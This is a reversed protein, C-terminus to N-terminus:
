IKLLNKVKMVMFTRIKGIRWYDDNIIRVGYITQDTFQRNPKRDVKHSINVKIYDTADNIGRLKNLFNIFDPPFFKEREYSNISGRKKIM